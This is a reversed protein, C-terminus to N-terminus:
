VRGVLMAWLARLQRRVTGTEFDAQSPAFGASALRDLYDDAFLALRLPARASRPVASVGARGAALEARAQGAMQEVVRTLAPTIPGQFLSDPDIGAEHLTDAPLYSRQQHAHFSIARILGTLGWGRGIARAAARAEASMAGACLWVAAEMLAGATQDCYELLAAQTEPRADYVDAMRGEILEDLLARDLGSPTLAQAVAQLVPHARPQGAYAQDVGERWWTLRIEGLFPESVQERVKALELNFAFLTALAPRAAAPAQLLTLYRDHDQTRVLELCHELPSQTM